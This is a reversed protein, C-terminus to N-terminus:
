KGSYYLDGLVVTDATPPQHYWGTIGKAAVVTDETDAISVWEGSDAVLEGAESYDAQIAKPNTSHLGEDMLKDAAPVSGHMENLSGDTNSFIRIWSDPHADDPNVTWVLLNPLQSPKTSAYDFVEGIPVGRISVNLGLADLEIEVFEAVRQNNPDDTSYVLQIDRSGKVKALAKAFLSPDYKPDDLALNPPFEGVPYAQTSITAIKNGFVSAVIAAKNIASRLAQRLAPDQFIGIDPNVDLMVKLQTPFSNVTFNPNHEFSEVANINLGHLIMSLQGDQLEIQQTSIDPVINIQVSTYYPKTGWYGPYATLIYHSGPVFTAIQYAGTGADHTKLWAQAWDGPHGGAEHAVVTKESVMKPGYPSAMYDLFASVPENLHVVFTYPNPTSMSTVNAVMYEPASDVGKRREFSFVADAATFLSGDHFHVNHRLYFTYTKGGDTVTWGTALCPVIKTSNNAYKVLGEYVSTVVANGEIEYFIDPDPVQMDAGFALYLTHSAAVPSSAGATAPTLGISAM